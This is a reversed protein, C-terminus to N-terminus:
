LAQVGDSRVPALAFTAELLVAFLVLSADIHVFAILYGAKTCLAADVIPATIATGTVSSVTETVVIACALVNVLAFHMLRVIQASAYTLIRLARVSAYTRGTILQAHIPSRTLVDVLALRLRHTAVIILDACINAAAVLTIANLTWWLILNIRLFLLLHGQTRALPLAELTKQNKM